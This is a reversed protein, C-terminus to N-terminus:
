TRHRRLVYKKKKKKRRLVYMRTCISFVHHHFQLVCSSYTSIGASAKGSEAAFDRKEDGLVYGSSTNSEPRMQPSRAAPNSEGSLDLFIHFQLSFFCCLRLLVVRGGTSSRFASTTRNCLHVIQSLFSSSVFVVTEFIYKEVNLNVEFDNTSFRLWKPKLSSNGSSEM